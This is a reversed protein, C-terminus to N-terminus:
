RRDQFAHGVGKDFYGPGDSADVDVVDCRDRALKDYAEGKELLIRCRARLRVEPM